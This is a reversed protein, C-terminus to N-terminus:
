KRKKKKKRDEAREKAAEDTTQVWQRAATIAFHGFQALVMTFDSPDTLRGHGGLVVERVVVKGKGLRMRRVEPGEGREEAEPRRLRVAAAQQLEAARLQPSLLRINELFIAFGFKTM